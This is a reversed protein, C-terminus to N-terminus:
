QCTCSSRQFSYLGYCSANTCTPQQGVNCTVSCGGDSFYDVSDPDAGCSLTSPGISCGPLETTTSVSTSNGTAAFVAGSIFLALLSMGLKM